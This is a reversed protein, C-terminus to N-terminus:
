EKYFKALANMAVTNGTKKALDLATEGSDNRASIDAGHAILEEIIGSHTNYLAAVMLITHRHSVRADINAGHKVLERIIVPNANDAAAASLPTGLFTPEVENVKAGRAILSSIIEPDSVSTAAFMLVSGHKNGPKLAADPVQRASEMTASAWYSMGSYKRYPNMAKWAGAFVVVIILALIYKKNVSGM